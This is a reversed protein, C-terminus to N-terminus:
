ASQAPFSIWFTSGEGLRSAVGVTGGHTEAVRRVISLGIGLGTRSGSASDNSTFRDFLTQQAQTPIGPGEDRVDIRISGGEPRCTLTVAGGRPSYKIANTVLNEIAQRVLLLSGQFSPPTNPDIQVLLVVDRQSAYDGLDDRVEDLLSALTVDTFERYLAPNELRADSRLNASLRELGAISRDLARFLETRQEDSITHAASALHDVCGRAVALPTAIDHRVVDILTQRARESEEKASRAAALRLAEAAHLALETLLRAELEGFVPEGPQNAIALEGWADDGVVIPIAMLPAIPPHREVPIGVGAPHGRIDELNVLTKTQIPVALLGVARPLRSPFLDRPANYVFKAVETESGEKLVLLASFSAGTVEKAADVIRQLVVELSSTNLVEHALNNLAMLSKVYRQESTVDRMIVLASGDVEGEVMPCVEVDLVRQTSVGCDLLGGSGEAIMRRLEAAGDGCIAALDFDESLADEISVGFAEVAAPNWAEVKDGRVVAVPDGIIWFLEGVVGRHVRSRATMAVIDHASM